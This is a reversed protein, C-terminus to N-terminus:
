RHRGGGGAALGAAARQREGGRLGGAPWGGAGAGGGRWAGQGRCRGGPAPRDQTGPAGAADLRYVTLEPQAQLLRLEGEVEILQFDGTRLTAQDHLQRGALQPLSGDGALQWRSLGGNIGNMAFLVATGGQVAIELDRLDPGFIEDGAGFRGGFDLEAVLTM